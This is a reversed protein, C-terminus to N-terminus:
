HRGNNKLREIRAKEEEYKLKSIKYDQITKIIEVTMMGGVGVVVLLLLLIVALSLFADTGM